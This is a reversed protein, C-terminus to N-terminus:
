FGFCLTKNKLPNIMKKFFIYKGNKCVCHGESDVIETEKCFNVNKM